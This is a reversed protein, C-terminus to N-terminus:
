KLDFNCLLNSHVDVWASVHVNVACSAKSLLTSKAPFKFLKKLLLQENNTTCLRLLVNWSDCHVIVINHGTSQQVAMFLRRAATLWHQCTRLTKTQESGKLDVTLRDTKKVDKNCNYGITQSM